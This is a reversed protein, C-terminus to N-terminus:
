RVPAAGGMLTSAWRRVLKMTEEAAATRAGSGSTGARRCLEIETSLALREDQADQSNDRHLHGALFVIDRAAPSKKRGTDRAFSFNTFARVVQVSWKPAITSFLPYSQGLAWWVRMSLPTTEPTFGAKSFAWWLFEEEYHGAADYGPPIQLGAKAADLFRDRVCALTGRHRALHFQSVERSCIDCRITPNKTM